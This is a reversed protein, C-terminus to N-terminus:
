ISLRSLWGPEGLTRKLLSPRDRSFGWIVTGWLVKPATLKLSLSKSGLFLLPIVERVKGRNENLKELIILIGESALM